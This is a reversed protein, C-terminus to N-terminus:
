LTKELVIFFLAPTQPVPFPRREGTRRYGKRLYWAILTDRNEIVTMEIRAAGISAARAEGARLLMTGLGASQLEPAICLMGLYSLGGGRDTIAVCGIAGGTDADTAVIMHVAPDRLMAHLEDEAIREGQVIDAEHTWGLRARDGRYAGELLPKLMAADDPGARRIEPESAM